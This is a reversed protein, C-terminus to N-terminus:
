YSLIMSVTLDYLIPFRKGGNVESHRVKEQEIESPFSELIM